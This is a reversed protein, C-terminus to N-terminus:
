WSTCMRSSHPWGSVPPPRYCRGVRTLPHPGPPHPKFGFRRARRVLRRIRNLAAYDTPYDLFTKLPLAMIRDFEAESLGLKKVVYTRDDQQMAETYSNSCLDALAEDRTMQGSCILSSLHARRKDINFKRPLIYGQFFRTYISEYHKGM